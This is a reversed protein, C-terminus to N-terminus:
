EELQDDEEEGPRTWWVPTMQSGCLSLIHLDWEGELLTYGLMGKFHHVMVEIKSLNIMGM